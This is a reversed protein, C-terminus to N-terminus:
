RTGAVVRALEQLQRSFAALIGAATAADRAKAFSDLALNLQGLTTGVQLISARRNLRALGSPNQLPGAGQQITRLASRLESIDRACCREGWNTVASAVPAPGPRGPAAVAPRVVGAVKGQMLIVIERMHDVQDAALRLARGTPWAAAGAVPLDIDLRDITGPGPGFGKFIRGFIKEKAEPHQWLRFGATADRAPAIGCRATKPLPSGDEPGCIGFTTPTTIMEGTWQYSHTMSRFVGLMLNAQASPPFPPASMGARRALENLGAGDLLALKSLIVSNYIPEFARWDFDGSGGSLGMEQNVQQKTGPPFGIQDMYSAPDTAAVYLDYIEAFYKRFFRETEVKIAESIPAVGSAVWSLFGNLAAAGEGIAHAGFMKPIWEAMWGTMASSSGLGEGEMLYEGLSQSSDVMARFGRKIDLQWTEMQEKKACAVPHLACKAWYPADNDINENMQKRARDILPDLWDYIDLWKQYYRAFDSHRRANEDRILVNSVFGPWVDLSLETKPTHAGVYGELVVHKIATSRDKGTFSVWAGDAKQNVWSHAWMDGAGHTLFGYAFALAKSRESADPWSWARSWVQRLWGDATWENPTDSHIIWGGFVMDPFLDPGIVGARYASPYARLAQLAAPAVPIEGFPPITVMGDHIADALAKNAAFLHTNIKWVASPRHFTGIPNRPGPSAAAHRSVLAALGVALWPVARPM